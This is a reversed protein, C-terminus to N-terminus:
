FHFNFGVVPGKYKYREELGSQRFEADKYRYGFVIGQRRQPGVAWRVAGQALFVGESDGFGYDMRIFLDLHEVLKYRDRFGILADFFDRDSSIQGLRVDPDVLDVQFRDDLATYRIGAYMNFGSVDRWPWYAVAADVFYQDSDSSIRLSGLGAIDIQKEDATSIYTFDIFGSWRGGGTEAMIQFAGDLSDALEGFDVDGSGIDRGDGKLRYSTDAFWIYPTISWQWQDVTVAASEARAPAGIGFAAVFVLSGSLYRVVTKM